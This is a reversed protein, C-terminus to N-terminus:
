SNKIEFEFTNDKEQSWSGYPKVQVKLTYEKRDKVNPFGLVKFQVENKMIRQYLHASIPKKKDDYLVYDINWGYPPLKSLLKAKVGIEGSEKVYNILQVDVKFEVPIAIDKPTLQVTDRFYVVRKEKSIFYSYYNNTTENKQCSSFLIMMALGLFLTIKQKM